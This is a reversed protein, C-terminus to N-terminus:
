KIQHGSGAVELRPLDLNNDSNEESLLESNPVGLGKGAYESM